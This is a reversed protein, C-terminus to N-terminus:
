LRVHRAVDNRHLAVDVLWVGLVVVVATAVTAIPVLVRLSVRFPRPVFASEQLM